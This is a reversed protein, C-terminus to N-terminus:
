GFQEPLQTAEPSADGPVLLGLLEDAIKLQYPDWAFGGRRMAACRFIGLKVLLRKFFAISLGIEQNTFAVVPLLQRFRSVAEARRGARHLDWIAAYRGVMSAEPILADVGRDMAEIMQAIAWGGSVHFDGGLAERVITYKPGSPVSEVKAGCLQPIERRLLVLTELSLGPGTWDLDQILLPLTSNALSKRLFQLLELSLDRLADPVAILCAQAGASEAMRVLEACQGVDASSCGAILPVRGSVTSTVFQLLKGREAMTLTEVESAVAPCLFGAAGASIAEDILRRLSEYDISLDDGFPTQLVPVIGGPLRM